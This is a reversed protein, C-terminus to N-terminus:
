DQLAARKPGSKKKFVYIPREFKRELSVGDEGGSCSSSTSSADLNMVLEFCGLSSGNVDANKSQTLYEVFWWPKFEISDVTKRIEESINKKKGYSKWPQPELIFYGNPKLLLSVKEFFEKLGDDGHHFHIWKTVSFCFIWDVCSSRRASKNENGVDNMDDSNEVVLKSDMKEKEVVEGGSHELYQLKDIDLANWAEFYLNSYLPTKENFSNERSQQGRESSSVISQQWAKVILSEDM